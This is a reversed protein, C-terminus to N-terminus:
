VCGSRVPQVRRNAPSPAHTALVCMCRVHAHVTVVRTGCTGPLDTRHPGVPWGSGAVTSGNDVTNNAADEVPRAGGDECIRKCPM